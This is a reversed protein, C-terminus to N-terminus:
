AIGGPFVDLDIWMGNPSVEFERYFAPRSPDPQLFVEAVDRDWLHDRRGNPDSDSFIFIERYRCQFRLFLNQANWLLQVTTSREPDANEGRWDACFSVPAALQWDLPNPLPDLPVADGAYVALVEGSSEPSM